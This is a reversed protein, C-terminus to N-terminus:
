LKLVKKLQEENELVFGAANRQGGGGYKEALKSVDVSGDGRLSVAIRGAKETWTIGIPPMKKTLSNGVESTYETIHTFLTKYGEFTIEKAKSVVAEVEKNMKSVLRHGEKLYEGFKNEDDFGAVLEDWLKFNYEQSDIFMGLEKSHPLDFKWIDTDEIYLFMKPVEQEPFFYKWTLVAGCHKDDYVFESAIKIKEKNTIHHDVMVLRKAEKKIKALFDDSYTYDFIYVDKGLVEPPDAKHFAPSYEASDGLKKWAAFASGFGDPCKAHFIVIINKKVDKSEM